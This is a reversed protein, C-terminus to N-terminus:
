IFESNIVNLHLKLLSSHVVLLKQKHSLFLLSLLKEIALNGYFLLPLQM